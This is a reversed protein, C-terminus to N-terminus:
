SKEQITQHMIGGLTKFKPGLDNLFNLDDGHNSLSLGDLSQARSGQGEYTYNHPQYVPHDAQNGNITHLRRDLHGAIHQNSRRSVSHHRSSGGQNTNIRNTNWESYMNQGGQSRLTDRQHQMTTSSMHSNIMTQGYSNYTDMDQIMVPATQSMQKTSMKISDTVAENRTPTLPLTPVAKCESGGGEQNYKILTQNGEDEATPITFKKGCQCMFILLLLLFLLLGVFILGIGPAGLSSSLPEKGKCVNKEGCDCVTVDVTDRGVMNQQDQILLPVPYNGYPLQKLSVLGGEEGTAPDFKWRQALDKDDGGLSFTFPGSYPAADSDNAQVMVKSVKNGCMVVGRNVLQPLNDNIDGLHIRVTCTGTGQPKGNDTARILIKYINTTNDVFPSERDMKKTSTVTGTKEDITVWDAPDELLDFRIPNGEADHVTPTHLVMGPQEEEKQYVDVPDKDFVPPDNMDIVTIDITVSDPTPGEGKGDDKYDKCITLPEANKVGVKLKATNTKEYDKKKIVSLIGENTDPDTEIKYNEDENGEMFYYIANWGPTKPTDKDEVGIRLIDGKISAEQVEGRYERSKFTPLHTNTDVINLTIVATSSKMEEGHDNAKVIVEYKKVKDYDFCGDLTLRFQKSNIKHIGIKPQTPNQSIVSVSIQSNPTNEKDIDNVYLLAPLYTGRTSEKVQETMQPPFFQPANDNIDKLEVDFALEEDLRNGTHQHVIDFKIHFPKPYKERDLARNAFVEGTDKRIEFVGLPPKDVGMGSIRFEHHHGTMNNFMKSILKPYPGEEEEELEITSLVWRRKSRVLLERKARRNYEINSEALATLAVLLLLSISRM